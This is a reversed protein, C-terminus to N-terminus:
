FWEGTAADQLFLVARRISGYVIFYPFLGQTPIINIYIFIQFKDLKIPSRLKKESIGLIKLGPLFLDCKLAPQTGTKPYPGSNQNLKREHQYIAWQAFAFLDDWSQHSRGKSLSLGPEWLLEQVVLLLVVAHQSSVSM